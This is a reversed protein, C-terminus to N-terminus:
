LSQKFAELANKMLIVATVPGVGGPVPSIYGAKDKASDFDVDGVIKGEHQNIGVDIVVAGEKIWDGKVFLPKGLAAVVVDAGRLHDELDVTKSHCLTVTMDEKLLLLAMPKGVIESRGIIVAHKGQLSLGCSKLLALAAAPTCPWLHSKNMLLAGLNTLNMGEIDKHPVIANILTYFDISAPIPKNIIIGHVEPSSNVKQIFNVAEQQPLKEDLVQLAYHIGLSQATKQQSTIYSQSAASQGFAISMIRPTHHYQQKLSAIEKSLDEKLRAALAKGDLIVSM